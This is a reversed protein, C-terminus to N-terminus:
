SDGRWVAVGFGDKGFEDGNYLMYIKQNLQFISPYCIMEKAQENDLGIGALDDQRLWDYGDKSQAFGIRYKGVRSHVYSFWMRYDESGLKVVASRAVNTENDRLGVAVKGTREWNYPNDSEAYKIDYFSSTKEHAPKAGM